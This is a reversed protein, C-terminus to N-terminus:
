ANSNHIFRHWFTVSIAIWLEFDFMMFMRELDTYPEDPGIAFRYCNFSIPDSMYGKKYIYPSIEIILNLFDCKECNWMEENSIITLEANLQEEFIINMLYYYIFSSKENSAVILECGYFNEYKNPYFISNEWELTRLDFRNITKLQLEKCAQPTFMYTTVLEISNDIEHMLFNVHDIDFGDVFTDIIDSTTLEPVYVLHHNRHRKNSVWLINSTDAKFSEVSEFFVISSRPIFFLNDDDFDVNLEYRFVRILVNESKIKLLKDIEKSFKQKDSGFYLIDIRGPYFGLTAFYKDIISNIAYSVVSEKEKGSALNLLIIMVVTM